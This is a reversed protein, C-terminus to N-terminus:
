RQHCPYSHYQHSLSSMVNLMMEKHLSFANFLMIISHAFHSTWKYCFDKLSQYELLIFPNCKVLQFCANWGWWSPFLCWIVRSDIYDYLFICEKRGKMLCLSFHLTFIWHSFLGWRLTQPKPVSLNESIWTETWALLFWFDHCGLNNTAVSTQTLMWRQSKWNERHIM